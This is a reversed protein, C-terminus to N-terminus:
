TRHQYKAQQGTVDVELLPGVARQVHFTSLNGVLAVTKVAGDGLQFCRLALQHLTLLHHGQGREGGPHGVLNLVREVEDVIEGFHAQLQHSLQLFLLALCHV